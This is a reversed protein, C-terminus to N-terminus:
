RWTAPRTGLVVRLVIAVAFMPLFFSIFLQPWGTIAYRVLKQWAFLVPMPAAIGMLWVRWGTPPERLKLKLLAVDTAAMMVGVVSALSSAIVGAILWAFTPVRIPLSVVNAAILVYLWAGLAPAVLTPLLWPLVRKM